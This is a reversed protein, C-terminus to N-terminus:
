IMSAPRVERTLSYITTRGTGEVRFRFHDCRRPIIPLIVTRKKGARIIEGAQEWKGSSDFQVLVKATGNEVTLRLLFRVQCSKDGGGDTFDGTEIMWPVNEEAGDMAYLNGGADLYHLVGDCTVFATVHLGADEKTWLNTLTDYCYLNWAEGRRASLYYRRGDSGGVGEAFPEAGLPQSIQYPIGGSYQMVGIWNLYFMTEGAVAISDACGPLVGSTANDLTAFNSPKGGYMKHIADPKFFIPYGGYSFAASFDGKTGVSAWYSDMSNGGLNKWRFPNGLACAYIDNGKCGWLRNDIECFYEMDPIDRTMTLQADEEEAFTNNTFVLLKGEELIKQIVPTRNNEENSAGSITIAEGEEFPFATNGRIANGFYVEEAAGEADYTYTTIAASGTWSAGMDGFEDSYANYYKKDPFVLIYYGLQAFRKKNDAVTGKAEGDYYFTDGDVWFLKDRAGLGNPKALTRLLTRGKRTSIAPYDEVTMNVMDYLKGSQVVANHDLGAFQSLMRSDPNDAYVMRPLQM